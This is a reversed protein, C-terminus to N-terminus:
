YLVQYAYVSRLVRKVYGRTQGYPIEEVWIDDERDDSIWRTVAQPGANYSGIAASTQGEFQRVLGSLYDAGSNFPIASTNAQTWAAGDTSYWADRATRGFVWMKGGFVLSVHESRAPFAAAATVQTWTEGDSSNWVDNKTEPRRNDEQGM